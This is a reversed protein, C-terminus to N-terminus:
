EPMGKRQSNILWNKANGIFDWVDGSSPKVYNLQDLSDGMKEFTDILWKSKEGSAGLHNLWSELEGNPVLLIGYESYKELLNKAAELNKGNLLTIGGDRKMNKNTDTFAKLIAQRENHFSSHSITPINVAVLPKTAVTGGDKIFDIDAIGLTPIGLDRLPKVIDWITQKNQANIFLCDAIGRSDNEALLRENIEQYFARDSDAETVVVCEYFLSNLVGTSRLLPNRMLPLIKEQPLIRATSKGNKYTLRIVNLPTGSSICGMLFDASHTAIFINTDDTLSINSLEKGLKKALPPHLFAEPEDILCIKSNHGLVNALIGTYAKVGDSCEIIQTSKKHFERSRLSLAQEEDEDEPEKSSLRARLQGQHLADITFYEGFAEHTLRRLKQREEPKVWLSSLINTPQSLFDGGQQPNLLNTRTSGDLRITLLSIYYRTIFQLNNKQSDEKEFIEQMMKINIKERSSFGSPTTIRQILVQDDTIQEQPNETPTTKKSEVDKIASTSNILNFEIDQIIHNNLTNYTFCAKELERLILSKGSNNPGVFVTVGTLSFQLKKQDDPM